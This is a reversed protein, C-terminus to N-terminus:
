QRSKMKVVLKELSNIQGLLYKMAASQQHADSPTKGTVPIPLPTVSVTGTGMKLLNIESIIIQTQIFVDMPRISMGINFAPVPITDMGFHSRSVNISERATLCEKFVDGPTLGRVSQPVDVRYRRAPDIKGLISKVDQIARVMQSYVENPSIRNKGALVNIKIYAAAIKFFVHTPTKNVSRVRDIDLGRVGLHQAIRGVEFLVLEALRFVDSPTYNRPTAIVIPVPVMHRKLEYMHITELCSVAMQYVHMPKLGKEPFLKRDVEPKGAAALISDLNRDVLDFVAYVDSPTAAAYCKNIVCGIELSLFLVFAFLGFCIRKLGPSIKELLKNM